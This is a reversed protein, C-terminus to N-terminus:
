SMRRTRDIERLSKEIDQEAAHIRAPKGHKFDRFANRLEIAHGPDKGNLVIAAPTNQRGGRTRMRWLRIEPQSRNWPRSRNFLIMRDGWRPVWTQDIHPQGHPSDTYVVLLDKDSGHLKRVRRLALKLQLTFYVKASLLSATIAITTTWGVRDPAIIPIVLLPIACGLLCGNDSLFSRTRKGVTDPLSNESSDFSYLDVAEMIAAEYESRVFRFPGAHELGARDPVNGDIDLGTEYGFDRWVVTDDHHEIIATIAGCHLDGDLPCVFLATRGGNDPYDPPLDGLLRSAVEELYEKSGNSLRFITSRTNGLLDILRRGDIVPDAHATGTSRAGSGDVKYEWRQLRFQHHVQDGGMAYWDTRWTAACM